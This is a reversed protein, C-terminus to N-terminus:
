YQGMNYEFKFGFQWKYIAFMLFNIRFKKRKPNSFSEVHLPLCGVAFGNNIEFEWELHYNKNKWLVM